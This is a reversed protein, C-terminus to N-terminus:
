RTVAKGLAENIEQELTEKKNTMREGFKADGVLTFRATGLKALGIGALGLVQEAVDRLIGDREKQILEGLKMQVNNDTVVGVYVYRKEIRPRMGVVEDLCDKLARKSRKRLQVIQRVEGGSLRHQLLGHALTEQDTENDLRAIETASSFTVSGPNGGWDVLHRISEPLSRLRLFRSVWTTGELNSAKACDTLTGGGELIKAFLSAVEVPVLPRQGRHTGVSLLLRQREGPSLIDAVM